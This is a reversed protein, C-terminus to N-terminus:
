YGIKKKAKLVDKFSVRGGKKLKTDMGMVSTGFDSLSKGAAGKAVRIEKERAAKRDAADKKSKAIASTPFNLPPGALAEIIAEPNVPIIEPDEIALTTVVPVNVIGIMFFVPNGATLAPAISTAADTFPWIIGGIIPAAANIMASISPIVYKSTM